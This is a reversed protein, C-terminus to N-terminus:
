PVHGGYCYGPQRRLAHVLDRRTRHLRCCRYPPAQGNTTLMHAPRLERTPRSSLCTFVYWNRWGKGEPRRHLIEVTTTAGVLSVIYSAVVVGPVVRWPVIDGAQYIMAQVPFNPTTRVTYPVTILIVFRCDILVVTTCRSERLDPPAPHYPQLLIRLSIRYLVPFHTISSLHSPLHSRTHGLLPPTCSKPSRVVPSSVRSIRSSSPHCSSQM